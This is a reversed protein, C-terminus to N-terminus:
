LLKQEAYYAQTKRIENVRTAFRHRRRLKTPVEQCKRM